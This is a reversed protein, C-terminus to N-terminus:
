FSLKIAEIVMTVATVIFCLGYVIISTTKIIESEVFELVWIILFTALALLVSGIIIVTALETM